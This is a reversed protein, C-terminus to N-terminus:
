FLIATFVGFIIFLLNLSMLIITLIGIFKYHSKLKKLGFTLLDTDNNKIANKINNGFQFLFYIPIFSIGALILYFFSFFQTPVGLADNPIQSLITGMSFSMIIMLGIGIFGIISLIIAWKAAENLFKKAQLNLEM